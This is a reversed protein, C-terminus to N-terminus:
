LHVRGKFLWLSYLMLSDASMEMTLLMTKMEELSPAALDSNLPNGPPKDLRQTWFFQSFNLNVLRLTGVSLSNLSLSVM